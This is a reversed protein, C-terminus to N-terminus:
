SRTETILTEIESLPPAPKALVHVLKDLAPMKLGLSVARKQIAQATFFGEALPARPDPHEGRALKFGFQFNRSLPSYCTLMFDGLGAQTMFTEPQAGLAQGFIQMEGFGLTLFAARGNDGVGAGVLLGSAVAFINKLAGAVQVGILDAWPTLQFMPGHFASAMTQAWELTQAACTGRTPQGKRVESALHPGALFGIPNPLGLSAVMESVLLGTQLELGKSTLLLPLHPPLLVDTLFSRLEQTPVAVVGLSAAKLADALASLDTFVSLSSSAAAEEIYPPRRGWVQVQQRSAEQSRTATLALASGWAGAGLIVLSRPNPM